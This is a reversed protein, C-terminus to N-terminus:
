ELERSRFKYGHVPGRDQRFQGRGRPNALSRANRKDTCQSEGHGARGVCRRRRAGDVGPMELRAELRQEPQCEGLRSKRAVVIVRDKLLQAGIEAPRGRQVTMKLTVTGPVSILPARRRVAAMRLSQVFRLVVESLSFRGA